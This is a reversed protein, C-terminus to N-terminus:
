LARIEGTEVVDVPVDEIQAPIVDGPKLESLPVKNKVSVVICVKRIQVGGRRCYGVGVAVVNAKRLLEQEYRRKVELARQASQDSMACEELAQKPVAVPFM